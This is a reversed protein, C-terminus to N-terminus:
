PHTSENKSEEHSLRVDESDILFSLAYDSSEVVFAFELMMAGEMM